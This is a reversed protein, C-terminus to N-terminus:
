KLQTYFKKDIPLHYDQNSPGFKKTWYKSFEINSNIWLEWYYEQKEKLNDIFHPRKWYVKKMKNELLEIGKQEIEKQIEFFSDQKGKQINDITKFYRGAISAQDNLIENIKKQDSNLIWELFKDKNIDHHNTDFGKRCANHHYDKAETYKEQALLKCFHLDKSIDHNKHNSYNRMWDIHIRKDWIETALRLSTKFEKQILDNFIALDYNYKVFGYGYLICLSNIITEKNLNQTYLDLTKSQTAITFKSSHQKIEPAKNLDTIRPILIDEKIEEKIQKVLPQNLFSEDDQQFQM